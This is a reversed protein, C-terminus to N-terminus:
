NSINSNCGQKFNNSRKLSRGLLILLYITLEFLSLFIIGVIISIFIADRNLVVVYTYHSWVDDRVVTVPSAFVHIYASSFSQSFEKQAKLLYENRSVLAGISEGGSIIVPDTKSQYHTLLQQIDGDFYKDADKKFEAISHSSESVRADLNKGYQDVFGPIQVGILLGLILVALKLYDLIKNMHYRAGLM